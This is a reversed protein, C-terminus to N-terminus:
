DVLKRWNRKGARILNVGKLEVSSNSDLIKKGDVEVGGSQILRKAEGNSSTLKLETLLEKLSVNKNGKKALKLNARKVTPIDEPVEKHQVTSEFNKEALKAAQEGDHLKVVEYALQKKTDIASVKGSKMKSLIQSIEDDALTTAFQFYHEILSDPIAMVKGFKDAPTDTLFICNGISKSMKNVGDSSLLLKMTLVFKDIDKLEKELHRGALMNFTQDSGGFEGDVELYVSDYGQMLPYLFEHLYIPRNEKMRKTFMDRELMQQVTFFSALEILDSFDLKSNWTSNFVLIAPNQKDQFDVYESIQKKFETSNRKVDEPTLKVRTASKDTPDGIMGTFDGMLFIIQHGLQQLERMKLLPIVHGIHLRPATTDAGLYFRLRKGSLLLKKFEESTPYIKDIRRDFFKEVEARSTVVPAKVEPFKKKDTRLKNQKM